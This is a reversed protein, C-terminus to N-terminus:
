EEGWLRLLNTRAKTIRDRLAGAEGRADLEAISRDLDFLVEREAAGRVRSTVWGVIALREGETVPEVRHLAGSPYLIMDGAALRISRAELPDEIVLEGGAYAEPESLFLTFSLDTRAGGMFADDVHTGYTQGGAYRSLLMRAIRKPRAAANFLPTAWLAAEVKRFVADREPSAAAQQNDKVTRAARGATARGDEFPMAAAAERIAGLSAADLVGGIVLMM